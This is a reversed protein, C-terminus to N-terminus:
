KKKENLRHRVVVQELTEHLPLTHTGTRDSTQRSLVSRVTVNELVPGTLEM